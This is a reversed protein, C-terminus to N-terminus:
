LNLEDRLLEEVVILPRQSETVLRVVARQPGSLRKCVRRAATRVAADTGHIKAALALCVVADLLTVAADMGRAPAPRVAADCSVSPPERGM